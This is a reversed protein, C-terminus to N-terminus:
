RLEKASAKGRINTDELEYRIELIKPEVGSHQGCTICPSVGEVDYVAGNMQSKWCYGLIRIRM